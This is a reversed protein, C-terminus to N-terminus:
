PITMHLVQHAISVLTGSNGTNNSTYSRLQSGDTTTTSNAPAEIVTPTSPATHGFHVILHQPEEEASNYEANVTMPTPSVEVWSQADQQEQNVVVEARALMAYPAMLVSEVRRIWGRRTPESVTSGSFRRWIIRDIILLAVLGLLLFFIAILSLNRSM